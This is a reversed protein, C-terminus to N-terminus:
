CLEPHPSHSLGSQTHAAGALLVQLSFPIFFSTFTQHERRKLQWATATEGRCDRETMSGQRPALQSHASVQEFLLSFYVEGGKVQPHQSKTQVPFATVCDELM